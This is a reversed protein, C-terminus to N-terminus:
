REIFCQEPPKSRGPVLRANVICKLLVLRPVQSIAGVAVPRLVMGIEVVAVYDVRIQKCQHIFKVVLRCPFVRSWRDDLPSAAIGRDLFASDGGLSFKRHNAAGDGISGTREMKQGIHGAAM